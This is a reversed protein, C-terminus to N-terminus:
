HRSKTEQKKFIGNLLWALRVGAKELQREAIDRMKGSYYDRPLDVGWKGRELLPGEPLEKYIDNQAILFSEYAWDEPKGKEWEKLDDPKIRNELRTALRRPDEKAKPEILNDWFGHLEIWRAWRSGAPYYRLWKENGGRDHDDACHLPQHVDGMFHVLFSLAEKRQRRSTFPAKLIGIDNTIQDVVCNHNPCVDAIDYQNQPQRVDLNFFHWPATEPRIQIIADAWTSIDSLDEHPGLIKEVERQANPKLRDQAIYAITRHGVVGWALLHVPFLFLTNACVFRTIKRIAM